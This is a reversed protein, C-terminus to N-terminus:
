LFSTTLKEPIDEGQRKSGMHLVLDLCKQIWGTPNYQLVFFCCFHFLMARYHVPLYKM